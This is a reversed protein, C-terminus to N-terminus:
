NYQLHLEDPVCAGSVCNVIIVKKPLKTSSIPHDEPQQEGGLLFLGAARGRCMHTCAYV